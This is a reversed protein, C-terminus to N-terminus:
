RKSKGLGLLEILLRKRQEPSLQSVVDDLTSTTTQKGMMRGAKDIVEKEHKATVHQYHLAMRADAHGAIHELEAITAGEQALHTLATHRLDHFHMSALRPVTKRARMWAGELRSFQLPRGNKGPFLLADPQRDIRNLSDKLPGVLVSPITIARLGTATKTPGLTMEIRGHEDLEKASRRIHIVHRELDIDRRELGIIEGRRLGLVGALLVATQLRPPMAAAAQKIEGDTAIVQEHTPRSKPTTLRCPNAPIMPTGDPMLTSAATTMISKLLIYCHRKMTKGHGDPGLPYTNWWKQVVTPTIDTIRMRGFAPFLHDHYYQLYKEKTGERLPEGNRQRHQDLWKTAYAAFTASRAQKEIRRAQEPQWTGLEIAHQAKYLWAEAQSDAGAPFNKAVRKPIHADPYRRAAWVPPQYSAEVYKSGSQHRRHKISGFTRRKM